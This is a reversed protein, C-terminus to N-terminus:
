PSAFSGAALEIIEATIEDQRLRRFDANLGDLTDQINEQAVLMARMRAENEASFSLVIAESLQTFVYAQALSDLLVQVPLTTLPLNPRPEVVFQSFDYPLLRREVVEITGGPQSVGHWVSARSIHGEGLREYLGQTIQHALAAAEGVHAIMGAQWRVSLCRDTAIRVGREGVVFYEVGEAGTHATASRIMQHNYAGVFGQETCLIIAASGSNPPPAPVEHGVRLERGLALADGIALGVVDACARIGALQERAEHARAAAVARMAGIVSALDHASGIRERVNALEVSM